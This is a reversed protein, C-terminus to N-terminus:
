TPLQNAKRSSFLTGVVKAEPEGTQMLLQQSLRNGTAGTRIWVQAEFWSHESEGNVAEAIQIHPTNRCQHTSCTVSCVGQMGLCTSPSPATSIDPPLQLLWAWSPAPLPQLEEGM